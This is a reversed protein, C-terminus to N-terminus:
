AVEVLREPEEILLDDLRVAEGTSQDFYFVDPDDVRFVTADAEPDEDPWPDGFADVSWWAHDDDEPSDVVPLHEPAPDFRMFQAFTMPAQRTM